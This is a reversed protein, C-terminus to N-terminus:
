EGLIGRIKEVIQPFNMDSVNRVLWDALGEDATYAFANIKQIAEDAGDMDYTACANALMRLIDRDPSDKEPKPQEDAMTATLAQLDHVLREASKIFDANHESIYDMDGDKSAMELREARDGLMEAGIGRSSSKLGHVIITYDALREWDTTQIQELLSGTNNAYSRLVDLYVAEDGNFRKIGAPINLGDIVTDGLSLQTQDSRADAEAANKQEPIQGYQKKEKV